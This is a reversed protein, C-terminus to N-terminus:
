SVVRDVLLPVQTEEPTLSGHFGVMRMEIGFNRSSFVGFDDLAAVLVDGIRARVAPDVPGFWGLAEAEDRTTVVARAGCAARWRAAVDAAAGSRVYLHRFRAEGGLVVVDEHLGLGQAAPGDVDFRGDGPLDVMGHDATVVLATGAPLADALAGVEADISRLRDSWEVSASGYKHGTHDLTSEYTYVISRPAAESVEVVVDSREWVSDVPHYAVGRQSCLTLGSGEFEAKNVVSAVIGSADLRELMNPHPQWTAADVTDDWKLSNLLRDTGPIRCTYGVVGHRGPALGTGLSTLSTATTSPLGSTMPAQGDLLGSLYPADDRHERLLDYGLGDVLVVVYRQAEPLDLVNDWTPVGMAAAISPLVNVLCRGDYDPSWAPTEPAYLSM